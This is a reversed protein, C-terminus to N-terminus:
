EEKAKIRELRRSEDIIREFLRIVANSELPGANESILRDVIQKEREPDYIALKHTKKLAGIKLALSSRVNLLKLISSDIADILERIDYVEAPTTM